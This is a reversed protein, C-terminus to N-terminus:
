ACNLPGLAQGNNRYDTVVAKFLEAVTIRRDQPSVFTGNALEGIRKKLLYQADTKKESSSSERVPSGNGSYAIWWNKSGPQLYISGSGRRARKKKKEDNM